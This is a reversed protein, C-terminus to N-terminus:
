STLNEQVHPGIADQSMLVFLCDILLIPEPSKVYGELTPFAWGMDSSGRILM